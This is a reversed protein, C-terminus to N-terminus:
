ATIKKLWTLLRLVQFPELLTVTLLITFILIFSIFKISGKEKKFIAMLSMIFGILLMIIGILVIFENYGESLWNLGWFLLGLVIFVISSLSFTEM